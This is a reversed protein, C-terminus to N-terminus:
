KKTASKIAADIGTKIAQQAYQTAVNKATNSVIDTVFKQGPAKQQPTLKAYQQELNTRTIFSQLEQNSLSDLGHTRAKNKAAKAVVADQHPDAKSPGTSRPKRPSPLHSDGKRHGWKMGLVGYHALFDDTDTM